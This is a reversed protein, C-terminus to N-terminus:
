FWTRVAKSNAKTKKSEYAFISVLQIAQAVRKASICAKQLLSLIMLESSKEQEVLKLFSNRV